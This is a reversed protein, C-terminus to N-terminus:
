VDYNFLYYYNILIYVHKFRGEEPPNSLHKEEPSIVDWRDPEEKEFYSSPALNFAHRALGHKKQVEPAIPFIGGTWEVLSVCRHGSPLRQMSMDVGLKGFFVRNEELDIKTKLFELFGVSLLPPINAELVTMFLTGPVGGISVPVLITRSVKAAGGIGSPEVRPMDVEIVRLGAERLRGELAKAAEEGILDQTAGIDLIAEGSPITLFSMQELGSVQPPMCQLVDQCAQAVESRVQQIRAASLFSFHSSTETSGGGMYTYSFGQTKSTVPNKGSTCDEAWHGKKGCLRCTSIKKLQDRSMRQHPKRDRNARFSSGPVGGFRRQDLVAYVEQIQTESLNMSDLEAAVIEDTEEEEEEGSEEIEEAQDQLFTSSGGVETAYGIMKDSRVDLRAIARSVAAPNDEDRGLLVSINQMNQESLLAGEKLMTAKLSPPFIMGYHAAQTFEKERRLTFQTLSEDRKRHSDTMVAKFVKRKEDDERVGAKAEIITIIKELYDGQALEEETLHDFDPMLEWGLVRLVKEARRVATVWHKRFSWGPWQPPDAYDPKPNRDWGWSSGQWGANWQQWEQPTWPSSTATSSTPGAPPSSSPMANFAASDSTPMATSAHLPVQGAAAAPSTIPTTTSTTVDATTAYTPRHSVTAYNMAEWGKWSTWDGAQWSSPKWGYNWSSGWPDGQPVRTTWQAAGAPGAWPDAQLWPDQGPDRDGARSESASAHGQMSPTAGGTGGASAGSHGDAGSANPDKAQLGRPYFSRDSLKQSPEALHPEDVAKGPDISTPEAGGVTARAPEM